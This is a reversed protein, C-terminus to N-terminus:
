EDLRQKRKGREEEVAHQTSREKQQRGRQQEEGDQSLGRAM